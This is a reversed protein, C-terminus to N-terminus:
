SFRPSLYNLLMRLSVTFQCGNPLWFLFPCRQLYGLNNTKSTGLPLISSGVRLNESKFNRKRLKSIQNLTDKLTDWFCFLCKEIGRLQQNLQHV